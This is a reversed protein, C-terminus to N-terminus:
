TKVLFPPRSTSGYHDFARADVPLVSWSESQAHVPIQTLYHCLTLKVAANATVGGKLHDRHILGPETCQQAQAVLDASERRIPQPGQSM